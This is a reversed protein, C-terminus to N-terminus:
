GGGTHYRMRRPETDAAVGLIKGVGTSSLKYSIAHADPVWEGEIYYPATATVTRAVSATKTDDYDRYTTLTYTLAGKILAWTRRIRRQMRATGFPYWPFRAHWAIPTTTYSTGGVDDTTALALQYVNDKGYALPTSFYMQQSSSDPAFTVGDLIPLDTLWFSQTSPHYFMTWYPVADGAVPISIVVFERWSNVRPINNDTKALYLAIRARFTERISGMGTAADVQTGDTVYLGDDGLFYCM